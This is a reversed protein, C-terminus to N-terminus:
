LYKIHEEKDRLQADFSCSEKETKKFLKDSNRELMDLDVEFKKRKHKLEKVENFMAKRKENEVSM